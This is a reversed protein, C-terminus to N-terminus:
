INGFPEGFTGARQIRDNYAAVADANEALWSAARLQKVQERLASELTASLPIGLARAEELLAADVSLNVARRAAGQQIGHAHTM